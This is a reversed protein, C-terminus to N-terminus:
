DHPTRLSSQPNQALASVSEAQGIRESREASWTTILADLSGELTRFDVTCTRESLLPNVLSRQSMGSSPAICPHQHLHDIGPRLALKKHNARRVAPAPKIAFYTRCRFCVRVNRIRLPQHVGADQLPTRFTRKPDFASFWVSGSGLHGLAPPATTSDPPAASDAAPVFRVGWL